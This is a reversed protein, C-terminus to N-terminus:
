ASEWLKGDINIARGALSLHARTASAHPVFSYLAIISVIRSKPPFTETIPPRSRRVLARFAFTCNFFILSAHM